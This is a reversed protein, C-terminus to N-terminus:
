RITGRLIAHRMVSGRNYYIVVYISGIIYLTVNSKERPRRRNIELIHLVQEFVM